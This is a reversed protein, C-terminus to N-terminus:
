PRLDPPALGEFFLKVPWVFGPLVDGGDISDDARLWRDPSSRTNVRVVRTAPDIVWIVITGAAHYDAIKEALETATESPSLVEVVLDPALKLWGTAIGGAPLRDARVFSVDPSRVTNDLHPLEFGTGDGFCRGLRHQRVHVSVAYYVNDVVVGHPGMAPTMVHVEGRVLESREIASRHTLFEEVTLM